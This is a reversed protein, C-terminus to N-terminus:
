DVALLVVVKIFTSVLLLGGLLFVQVVLVSDLFFEVVSIPNIIGPVLVVREAPDIPFRALRQMLILVM